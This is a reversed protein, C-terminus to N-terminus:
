TVSSGDPARPPERIQASAEVAEVSALCTLLQTLIERSYGADSSSSDLQAQQLDIHHLFEGAPSIVVLLPMEFHYLSRPLHEAVWRQSTEYCLRTHVGFHKDVLASEAILLSELAACADCWDAGIHLLIPLGVLATLQLADRVQENPDLEVDFNAPLLVHPTPGAARSEWLGWAAAGSEAVESAGRNSIVAGTPSFVICTPLGRLLSQYREKLHILLEGGFPAALWPVPALSEKFPSRMFKVLSAESADYSVQIIQLPAAQARVVAGHFEVLRPM